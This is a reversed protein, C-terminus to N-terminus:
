FKDQGLLHYHEQSHGELYYNGLIKIILILYSKVLM